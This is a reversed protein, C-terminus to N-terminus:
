NCQKEINRIGFEKLKSLIKNFEADRKKKDAFSINTSGIGNEMYILIYYEGNEKGFKNLKDEVDIAQIKNVNFLGGNIQIFVANM